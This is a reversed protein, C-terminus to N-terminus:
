KAAPAKVIMVRKALWSGDKQKSGLAFVNLGAKLKTAPVPIIETIQIHPPITVPLSGGPYQVVVGGGSQKVVKGNTMRSPKAGGGGMKKVTGNTMRNPKGSSDNTGMMRSGEGLGRLAEPFIHVESARESGDPQKVTTIGVFSNKKVHNLSAPVRDYLQYGKALHVTESGTPTAVKMVSGNLSQIKGRVGMPSQAGASLTLAAIAVIPLCVRLTKMNM